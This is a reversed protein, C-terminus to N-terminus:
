RSFRKNEGPNSLIDSVPIKKKWETLGEPASGDSTGLDVPRVKKDKRKYL